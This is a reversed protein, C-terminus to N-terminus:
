KAEKWSKLVAKLGDVPEATALCSGNTAGAIKSFTSYIDGSNELLNGTASAKKGTLYIFHQTLKVQKFYESLANADFPEKNGGTLFMENAQFAFKPMDALINLAERRPVPRFEREFLVVIHNEGQQGRFADALQRLSADNAKRLQTLNLLAQRYFNFLESLDRTEPLDNMGGQPVDSPLVLGELNRVALELENIVQKYSQAGKTIDGRLKDRMLAILEAKPQALKARSFGYLGSPSRIILQDSPGVLKNFIFDVADALGDTSEHLDFFVVVNRPSDAAPLPSSGTMALVTLLIAIPAFVVIRRM